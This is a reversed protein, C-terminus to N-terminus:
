KVGVEGMESAVNVLLSVGGTERIINEQNLSNPKGALVMVTCHKFAAVLTSNHSARLHM